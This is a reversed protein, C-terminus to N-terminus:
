GGAVPPILAIVDGHAIAEADLAFSENKAVRLRADTARLAPHRAEIAARASAITAGTELEFSEEGIGALERTVAFYLVRVNV